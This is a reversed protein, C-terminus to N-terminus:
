NNIFIAKRVIMTIQKYNITGNEELLPTLGQLVIWDIDKYTDLKDNIM